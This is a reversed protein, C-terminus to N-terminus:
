QAAIHNARVVNGWLKIESQLLARAAGPAEEDDPYLDM